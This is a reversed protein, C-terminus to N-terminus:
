NEPELYFSAVVGQNKSDLGVGVLLLSCVGKM